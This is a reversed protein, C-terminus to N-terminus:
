ENEQKQFFLLTLSTHLYSEAIASEQTSENLSVPAQLTGFIGTTGQIINDEEQERKEMTIGEIQSFKNMNEVYQIFQLTDAYKGDLQVVLRVPETGNPVEISLEEEDQRTRTSSSEEYTTITISIDKEEAVAELDEIVRVIGDSEIILDFKEKYQMIKDNQIRFDDLKTRREERSRQEAISQEINLRKEQIKEYIYFSGFVALVVILVGFFVLPIFPKIAQWSQQNMFDHEEHIIKQM